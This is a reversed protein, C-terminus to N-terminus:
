KLTFKIKKINEDEDLSRSELVSKLKKYSTLLEKTCDHKDLKEKTYTLECKQCSFLADPNALCFKEHKKVDKLGFTTGCYFKCSVRVSDFLAQFLYDLGKM